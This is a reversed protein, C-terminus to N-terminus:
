PPSADRHRAVCVRRSSRVSGPELHARMLCSRALLGQDLLDDRRHNLSTCGVLMVQAALGGQMGSSGPAYRRRSGGQRVGIRELARETAVVDRRDLRVRAAFGGRGRLGHAGLRVRGAVVDPAPQLLKRSEDTLPLPVVRKASVAAHEVPEVQPHGILKALFALARGLLREAVRLLV